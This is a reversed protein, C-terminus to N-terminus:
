VSRDQASFTLYGECVLRRCLVLRSASDLTGSLDKPVLTAREAVIELAEALYGPCDLVRDGLLLLIRSKRVDMTRAAVAGPRRSLGSQDSLTPLLHRDYLSGGVLRRRSTLFKEALLACVKSVDTQAISTSMNDRHGLLEPLLLSPDTLWGVPLCRATSNQLARVSESILLNLADSWTTATIGVTIHGSMEEQARASHPTGVPLYLVDGPMLSVRHSRSAGEGRESPTPFIEWTKSGFSQLVFVHHPDDHVNLGRAGAPTVYANIQCRHGMSLELERCFQALPAHVMHLRHLVLTAGEDMARLVKDPDPSGEVMLRSIREVETLGDSLGTSRHTLLYSEPPLARGDRVLRVESMRLSSSETLLRDVDRLHLLDTPVTGSRHLNTHRDWVQHRFADIDGVCRALAGVGVGIGIQPVGDRGVREDRWDDLSDSAVTIIDSDTLHRAM